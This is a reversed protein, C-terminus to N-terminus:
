NSGSGGRPSGKSPAYWRYGGAVKELEAATLETLTQRDKESKQKM